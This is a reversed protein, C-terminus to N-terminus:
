FNFQFSAVFVRSIDYVTPFTNNNGPATGAATYVPATEGTTNLISGRIQIDDTVYWIAGLDLYNVMDLSTEVTEAPNDNDVEGFHRWTANFDISWPSVWTGVIRHRYEPSPPRCQTGFKGACEVPDAGEFPVEDLKDLFTSAYDLRFSHRGVDFDYLVQLDIGTTELEGININTQQFGVGPEGALLGGNTPSRTILDCFTASGTALCNDLITQAEIGAEIADEVQINFYDLSVSLSPAWSPTYVFGFTVTDATEPDLAPNGGTLSQTQGSIVDPINGYQAATVGTRQCEELTARPAATSCPDSTNEGQSNLASNLDPLNTNQGTYLEIVNPARVARQYQARLRLDEIPAWALSLGYADADFDNTTMNGEAEYDSYRYQGRLTLEQIGTIGSAIPLEAEMFFESVDIDGSVPLTAGGVGTFGGGPTQLILDPQQGLSDKRFEVGALVGLGGDAWPLQVGYEGFDAQIDGGFIFQGTDGNRVGPGGVFDLMAQTVLSEGNPGRQFINYPVCGGSPDTCVINGDGDTTALFAQQVRSVVFDETAISQNRTESSQVFAQWNWVDEAFSGRLGAVVRWASNELRSNRNGGEVNRHSAFVSNKIVGNAIDDPSCDYVEAWQISGPVAQNLYPNDCNIDWFGFSATPAIQADSFNNFYSFDAFAEINDTIEYYGKATLNYRESPRQFYNLAGFNFTTTPSSVFPVLTGDPQQFVDDGDSFNAFRRFNSSGICGFGQFSTSAGSQGLSCAAEVRDAGLIERRDEYSAFLTANGRGDPANVGLKIYVLAEEGDTKSGPVPQEAARLVNAYFDDDNEATSFGYQGGVEVGEFDRQLVFNVVGGVADSGYVASAGGTLIDVREIMQLPIMDVNPAATVSSGYPLRKGDVLVLTRVAGLGRLNLTATGTAGNSVESAQGAFVQPLVNIFDEIRVNGRIVGEEGSVSLVPTAAALNPNTNLRSGTVVVEELEEDDEQANVASPLAGSLALAAVSALGFLPRRAGKARRAFTSFM